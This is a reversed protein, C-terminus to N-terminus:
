IFATLYTVKDDACLGKEKRMIHQYKKLPLHKLILRFACHRGCSAIDRDFKQIKMRNIVINYPSNLFLRILQPFDQRTEKRFQKDIFDLQTDVSGGYPDFFELTNDDHKIVCVWHGFHPKTQYLIVCCNYPHVLEDITDYKYLEPYTIIKTEGGLAEMIDKGSFPKQKLIDIYKDM